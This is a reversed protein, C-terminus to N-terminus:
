ALAEEPQDTAQSVGARWRDSAHQRTLAGGLQECNRIASQQLYLPLGFYLGVAIVVLVSTAYLIGNVIPIFHFDRGDRLKLPLPIFM